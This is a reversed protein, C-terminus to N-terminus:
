NLLKFEIIRLEEEPDSVKLKVELYHLGTRSEKFCYKKCCFQELSM